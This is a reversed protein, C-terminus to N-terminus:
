LITPTLLFGHSHGDLTGSGVIQGWINIDSVSNLVWGSGPRILTNLDRMGTHRTWIFPRGALISRGPPYEFNFTDGSIGIVKGFLNIKYAQSSTDGPLTGLDQM